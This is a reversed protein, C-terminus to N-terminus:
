TKKERFVFLRMGGYNWVIIVVTSIVLKVAIFNNPIFSILTTLGLGIVNLVVFKLFRVWGGTAGFTWNKNLFYSTFVGAIFGVAMALTDGAGFFHAVFTGVWMVATNLVGVCGYKIFQTVDAEKLGTVRAALRGLWALATNFLQVIKKM